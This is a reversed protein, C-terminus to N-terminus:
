AAPQSWRPRRDGGRRALLETGVHQYLEETNVLLGDLDFAVGRIRPPVPTHTHTMDTM